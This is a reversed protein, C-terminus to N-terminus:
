PDSERMESKLTSSDLSLSVLDAETKVGIFSQCKDSFDGRKEVLM